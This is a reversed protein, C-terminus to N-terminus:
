TDLAPHAYLLLWYDWVCSFSATHRIDPQLAGTISRQPRGAGEDLAVGICWRMLESPFNCGVVPNALTCGLLFCAFM